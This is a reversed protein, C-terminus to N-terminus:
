CTVQGHEVHFMKQQIGAEVLSRATTTIFVQGEYGSLREVVSVCGAEDLEAPLDDILLIPNRGTRRKFIGAQALLLAALALKIQGASYFHAMPRDESNFQLDSRHLGYRTVGRELDGHRCEALYAQLDTEAPWGHQYKLSIGPASLRQTEGILAECLENLFALRFRNLRAAATSMAKEWSALQICARKKLLSNRHRLARHYARWVDMYDPEVHFMAWDLWRRRCKPGGTILEAGSPTFTIIPVRAAQESVKHIERNDYRITLAGRSREIGTVVAPSGPMQLGACVQLESQQRRILSSVAASRFSRCRGLLHIAELLATKGSGNAGSIVNVRPDPEIRVDGLNRVNRVHLWEIRM